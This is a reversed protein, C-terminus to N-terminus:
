GRSTAFSANSFSLLPPVEESYVNDDANQILELVFHTQKSYLDEALHKLTRDLKGRLNKM